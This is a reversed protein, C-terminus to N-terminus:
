APLRRRFGAFARRRGTTDDRVQLVFEGGQGTFLGELFAGAARAPRGDAVLFEFPINEFRHGGFALHAHVGFLKGVLDILVGKRTRLNM